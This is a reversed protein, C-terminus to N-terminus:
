RTPRYILFLESGVKKVSKLKLNLIQDPQFGAGDLLTPSTRGGVLRPTLTVYYEDIHNASVFPWMIEGGGEVIVSRLGRSRLDAIIKTAPNGPPLQIIESRAAFKKRRSPSLKETVYLVREIRADKFFSWEPDIGLLRRSLVANIIKRGPKEPVCARKFSRLVGSGFIVVDAENRLTRLLKLDRASGLAFFSRDASAIKGDLSIALNSYIRLKQSSTLHKMYNFNPTESTM